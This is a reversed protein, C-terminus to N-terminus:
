VSVLQKLDLQHFLRDITLSENLYEIVLQSGIHTLTVESSKLCSMVVQHSTSSPLQWEIHNIEKQADSEVDGHFGDSDNIEETLTPHSIGKAIVDIQYHKDENNLYVMDGEFTVELPSHLRWQLTDSSDLELQDCVILGKDAVQVLTRLYRQCGSYAATLDLTVAHFLESEKRTVVHAVSSACDLVQGQHGILPLNHAQTQRTWQSHHKSAFRYGYSGSPTLVNVGQDVLAFNGQDGHRHSSNGFQSARYYFSLANHASKGLGAYDYYTTSSNKDTSAGVNTNSLARDQNRYSLQSVTPIIDLLHLKYSQIESELQESLAISDHGGFREAYIRLPNQAFFGPWEKGERLCWFGDGFPHIREQTAVFEMAFNVYNKYFPHNYFSFGSLREVTLFFSHQWKSYSSSYFPGEAWSGDRGGYFPLVGRYIMLAYNLWRECTTIDYEKHLALAAVGLYAPLRSTHSHGPFQKFQDQELREEMQFVIRVLFPRVFNKEEATLLPALWHYALFLNRSLSLGVEDGWTLPRVLTAPGEPSWEALRLLIDRAKEGSEQDQWIKYLLTLAMLERDIWNRANAIATRKGEEQGRRYHTPYLITNIDLDTLSAILKEKVGSSAQQVQEIDQDFYMLFQEKDTCQAFLEQATPAIYGATDSSVSFLMWDSTHQTAQCTVRWRYEAADLLFNFQFPSQVDQWLWKQDSGVQELELVYRNEYEEQPWNFSPPNVLAVENNPATFIQFDHNRQLSLMM